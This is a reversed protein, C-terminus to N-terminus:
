VEAFIPQLILPDRLQWPWVGDIRCETSCGDGNIRDNDECEEYIPDVVGDGCFGLRMPVPPSGEGGTQTGEQSCAVLLTAGVMAM